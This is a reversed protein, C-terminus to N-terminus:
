KLNSLNQSISRVMTELFEVKSKVIGEQQLLNKQMGANSKFLNEAEKIKNVLEEQKEVSQGERTNAKEIKDQAIKTIKEAEDKAQKTTKEIKEALLSFETNLKDRQAELDKINVLLNQKQTTLVRLENELQKVSENVDVIASVNRRSM